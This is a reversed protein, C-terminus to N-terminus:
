LKKIVLTLAFDEENLYLYRDNDDKFWVEISKIETINMDVEFVPVPEVKIRFGNPITNPINYLLHSLEGTQDLCGWAISCYIQIYSTRQIQIIYDSEYTGKLYEQRKFVCHFYLTFKM